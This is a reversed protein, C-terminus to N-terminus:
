QATGGCSHWSSATALIIGRGWSRHSIAQPVSQLLINEMRQHSRPDGRFGKQWNWCRTYAVSMGSKTEFYHGDNFLEKSKKLDPSHREQLLYVPGYHRSQNWGPQPHRGLDQGLLRWLEKCFIMYELNAVRSLISKSFAHNIAALMLPHRPQGYIIGQFIHDGKVGIAMIMYEKPLATQTTALNTAASFKPRIGNEPWALSSFPIRLAIKIDLYLGGHIYHYVYRFVDAKHAPQRLNKILHTGGAGAHLHLTNLLVEDNCFTREFDPLFERCMSPPGEHDDHMYTQFLTKPMPKDALADPELYRRFVWGKHTHRAAVSGIESRTEARCLDATANMERHVTDGTSNWSCVVLVHFADPSAQRMQRLARSLLLGIVQDAVTPRFHCNSVTYIQDVLPYPGQLSMITDDKLEHRALGYEDRKTAIWDYNQQKAPLLSERLPILRVSVPDYYHQRIVDGFNSWPLFHCFWLGKAGSWLLHQLTSDGLVLFPKPRAASQTATPAVAPGSVAAPQASAGAGVHAAAM